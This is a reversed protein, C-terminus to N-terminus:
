DRGANNSGTWFNNNPARINTGYRNNQPPVIRSGMRASLLLEEANNSSNTTLVVNATDQRMMRHNKVMELEREVM